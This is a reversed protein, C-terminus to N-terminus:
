PAPGSRGYIVLGKIVVGLRLVLQHQEQQPGLQRHQRHQQQHQDGAAIAGSTGAETATAGSTVAEVAAAGSTIAGAAAAGSTVAGATAAATSDDGATWGYYGPCPLEPLGGSVWRSGGAQVPEEEEEEESYLKSCVETFVVEIIFRSVGCLLGGVVAVM